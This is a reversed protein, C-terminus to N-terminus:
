KVDSKKIQENLKYISELENVQDEVSKINNITINEKFRDILSPNKLVMNIKSKLDKADKSKFILGNFNNKIVEEPGGCDSCIIPKKLVLGERVVLSFSEKVTSPVILVDFTNIIEYKESNSYAPFYRIKEHNTQNKKTSFNTLFYPGLIKNIFSIIKEGYSEPFGNKEAGYIHLEWNSLEIKKFANLLIDYGKLISDGGVYGFIIKHNDTSKETIGSPKNIGNENVQISLNINDLVCEKLTNSVTLIKNVDNELINRLYKNRKILFSETNFNKFDKVKRLNWLCNTCGKIDIKKKNCANWNLDILFLNSCFWWMDHMTLITPYGEKHAVTVLNAGLGQISHFHIIDPKIEFLYSNFFLDIEPNFYDSIQYRSYFNTRSSNPINIFRANVGDVNIDEIIFKSTSINDKLCFVYVQHKRKILEASINTLLKAVGSGNSPPYACSVFLIKM